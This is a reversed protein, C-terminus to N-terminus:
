RAVRATRAAADARWLARERHRRLCSPSASATPATRGKAVAPGAHPVFGLRELSLRCLDPEAAEAVGPRAEQWRGVLLGAPRELGRRLRARVVGQQPAAVSQPDGRRGPLAASRDENLLKRRAQHKIRWVKGRMSLIAFGTGHHRWGHRRQSARRATASCPPSSAWSRAAALVALANQSNTPTGNTTREPAACAWMMVGALIWALPHSTTRKSRRPVATKNARWDILDWDETGIVHRRFADKDRITASTWAKRYATGAKTKANDQGSANLNQLLLQNLKELQDRRTQLREKHAKDEAEIYDRLTIYAGIVQEFNITQTM